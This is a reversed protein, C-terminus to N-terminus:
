NRISSLTRTEIALNKKEKKKKENQFTIGGFLITKEYNRKESTYTRTTKELNCNVNGNRQNDNRIM